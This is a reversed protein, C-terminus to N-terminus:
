WPAYTGLYAHCAPCYHDMNNCSEICYPIMCCPWCGFLFLMLATLHTYTSRRVIVVTIILAACRPCIATTPVRPWSRRASPSLTVFPDRTSTELNFGQAQAYSPPPIRPPAAVPSRDDIPFISPRRDSRSILGISSYTPPADRSSPIDSSTRRLCNSFKWRRRRRRRRQRRRRRHYSRDIQPLSRGTSPYYLAYLSSYAERVSRHLESVQEVNEVDTMRRTNEISCTSMERLTM